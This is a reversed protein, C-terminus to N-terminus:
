LDEFEFLERPEVDLAKCIKLMTLMTINAPRSGPSEIRQYYKYALGYDEMDEQRLGRDMRLQKIRKGLKVFFQRERQSVM